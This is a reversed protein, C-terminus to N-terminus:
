FQCALMGGFLFLPLISQSQILNSILIQGDGRSLCALGIIGASGLYQEDHVCLAKM